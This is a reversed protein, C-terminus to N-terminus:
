FAQIAAELPELIEYFAQQTEDPARRMALTFAEAALVGSITKALATRKDEKSMQSASIRAVEPAIAALDFGMQAFLQQDTQSLRCRPNKPCRNPTHILIQSVTTVAATVAATRAIDEVDMPRKSGSQAAVQAGTTLAITALASAVAAGTQGGAAPQSRPAPSFELGAAQYGKVRCARRDPGEKSACAAEVTQHAEPHNVAFCQLQEKGQLDDCTAAAAAASMMLAAFSFM